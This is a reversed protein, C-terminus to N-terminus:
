QRLFDHIFLLDFLTKERLIRQWDYHSALCALREKRFNDQSDAGSGGIRARDDSGADV